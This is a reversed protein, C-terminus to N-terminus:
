RGGRSFFLASPVTVANEPCLEQCCYCRICAGKAIVPPKGCTLAKAPCAEVCVGCDVCAVGDFRPAPTLVGRVLGKLSKPLFDFDNSSGPAPAFRMPEAEDGIVEIENPDIIGNELCLRVTHISSPSFGSLRTAEYDLAPADASALLLGRSLPSGSGPGAGEMAVIGDLITLAPRLTSWLDLLMLAFAEHNAGARLHGAVKRKGPVCGYLNKVGLTLGMMTHTKWKALNWIAGANLAERAVELGKYTSGKVESIGASGLDVLEVGLSRCVKLIGCTRAVFKASGIGPSDGVVPVAGIELLIRLAAEIIAPHTTVAKEVSKPALLNPKVLVRQGKKAFLGPGGLLELARRLAIEADGYGPAKIRAVISM